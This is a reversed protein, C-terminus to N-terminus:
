LIRYFLMAYRLMAYAECRMAYFLAMGLGFYSGVSCEVSWSFGGCGGLAGRTPTSRNRPVPVSKRVDVLAHWCRVGGQVAVEGCGGVVLM